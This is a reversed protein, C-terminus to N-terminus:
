VDLDLVVAAYAVAVVAVSLWLPLGLAHVFAALVAMPVLWILARRGIIKAADRRVDGDPDDPDPRREPPQQYPKM